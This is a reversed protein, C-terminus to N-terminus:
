SATYPKISLLSSAVVYLFLDIFNVSGEGFPVCKFIGPKTDKLHIAEIHDFGKILESSPDDHWQTLNGLDPYLQLNPSNIKNIYVLGRTITGILWTDMIEITLMIDNKEAKDASYQLGQVFLDLTEKTSDEYYVDYGALQINKVGLDIALEIAKDIIEYARKRTEVNLSGFPFKRHGSLCMSQFYMNNEKLLSVLNAREDKTWELLSLREDSEDVSIEIFDFGAAKAAKIKTEWDFSNPIAKEYIGLKNDQLKM